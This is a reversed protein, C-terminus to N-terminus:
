LAMRDVSGGLLELDPNNEMPDVPAATTDVDGSMYFLGDTTKGATKTKKTGVQVAPKNETSSNCNRCPAGTTIPNDTNGNEIIIINPDTLGLRGANQLKHREFNDETSVFYIETGEYHWKITNTM